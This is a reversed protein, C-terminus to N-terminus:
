VREPLEAWASVSKIEYKKCIEKTLTNKYCNWGDFYEIVDFVAVGSPLIKETLYDRGNEPKEEPYKHWIITERRM